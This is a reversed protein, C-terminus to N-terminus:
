VQAAYMVTVYVAGSSPLALIAQAYVREGLAQELFGPQDAKNSGYDYIKGTRAAIVTHSDIGNFSILLDADTLNNIELLRVPNSFPIGIATPTLASIASFALFRIPEFRVRNSSILNGM